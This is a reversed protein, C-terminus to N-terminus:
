SASRPWRRTICPRAQAEKLAALAKELERSKRVNERMLVTLDNNLRVMEDHLAADQKKPTEGLLVFGDPRVDVLCELTRPVDDADVVNVFFRDKQGCPM